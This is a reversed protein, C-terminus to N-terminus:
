APLMFFRNARGEMRRIMVPYRVPSLFFRLPITHARYFSFFARVRTRNITLRVPKHWAYLNKHSDRERERSPPSPLRTLRLLFFGYPFSLSFLHSEMAHRLSRLCDCVDADCNSIKATGYVAPSPSISFSPLVLCPVFSFFRPAATNRSGHIPNLTVRIFPRTIEEARVM